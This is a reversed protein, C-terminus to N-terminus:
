AACGSSSTSPPRAGHCIVAAFAAFHAGSHANRMELANGSRNRLFHAFLHAFLHAFRMEPRMEKSM